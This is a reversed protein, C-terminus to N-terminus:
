LPTDGPRAGACSASRRVPRAQRELDANSVVARADGRLDEAIQEIGENRRFGLARTQTKCQDGLQNAVVSADNLAFQM